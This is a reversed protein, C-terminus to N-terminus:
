LKIKNEPEINVVTNINNGKKKKSGQYSIGLQRRFDTIRREICALITNTRQSSGYRNGNMVDRVIDPIESLADRKLWDVDKVFKLNDEQKKRFSRCDLNENRDIMDLHHYKTFFSAGHDYLPALKVGELTDANRIIGFNNWHRDTNAMLYDVVIMQELLRRLEGKVGLEGCRRIYHDLESEHNYKKCNCVYLAHILEENRGLMNPCGSVIDNKRKFIKYEVHDINLRDLIMSAAYESYPEQKSVEESAKLLWRERTNYLVWMKPQMGSASSSPTRGQDIVEQKIGIYVDDGMKGFRGDNEFYNIDEWKLDLGKEAIWFHDTMSLGNNKIILENISNVNEKELIYDKGERKEPIARSNLWANMDYSDIKKNKELGVPTKSRDFIEGIGSIRFNENIELAMVPDNNHKLEYEM